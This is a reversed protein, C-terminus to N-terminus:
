SRGLEEEGEIRQAWARPSLSPILLSLIPVKRCVQFTLLRVSLNAYPLHACVLGPSVDLMRANFSEVVCARSWLM